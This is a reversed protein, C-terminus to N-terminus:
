GFSGGWLGIDFHRSGGGLLEEGESGRRRGPEERESGLGRRRVGLLGGSASVSTSGDRLSGALGGNRSLGGASETNELETGDVVALVGIVVLGVEVVDEKVLALDGVIVGAFRCM